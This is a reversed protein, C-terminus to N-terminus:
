SKEDDSTATFKWMPKFPIRKPNPKPTPVDAM